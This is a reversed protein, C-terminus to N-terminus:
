YVIVIRGNGGVATSRDNLKNGTGGVAIGSAYRSNGTEPATTTSGTANAFSSAYTSNYYSSGGGGGQPDSVQFGGDGGGGGYYGGGGGGPRGYGIDGSGSAERGGGGIGAVGDTPGTYASGAGSGKIGGGVQTGGTAATGGGIGPGGSTYGGDGGQRAGTINNEATSYSAGGGGGGGAVLIRTGAPTNAGGGISLETRGGGIGAYIYNCNANGGGGYNMNSTSCTSLQGGGVLLSFTQNDTYNSITAFVYGGAGGMGGTFSSSMNSGGGGGAGWMYIDFSSVGSPITFEQNSGTYVYAYDDTYSSTLTFERDATQGQDDTARITFTFTTAETDDGGFDTTTIAGTASNLACNALTANELVDTTETFEVGDGTAAVTAVAGSFNGDITGLTGSGTTWVPADSITLAATSSRVALGTNLEIRIYYTGDTPITAGVTLQTASDRVVTSATTIVGTTSQFEVTPIGSAGFNTGAIVLSTLDNTAVSPTVSTFTPYTGTTVSGGLSIPSGDITIESNDLKINTISDDPIKAVTVANDAIGPATVKTQAM